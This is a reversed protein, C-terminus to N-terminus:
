KTYRRIARVLSELSRSQQEQEKAALRALALIRAQELRALVRNEKEEQEAPTREFNGM